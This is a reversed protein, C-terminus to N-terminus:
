ICSGEFGNMTYRIVLSTDVTSLAVTQSKAYFGGPVSVKPKEAFGKFVKGTANTTNPSPKLNVFWTKGGDPFRAWSQSNATETVKIQDIIKKAPSSLTLNENTKKTQTLKFTAHFHGISTNSSDRGSCWVRVFGKSQISAGKPFQWKTPKKDDDSFYYGELNVASTGTNYFEVWDETGL